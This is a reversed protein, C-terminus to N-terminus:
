MGNGFSHVVKTATIYTKVNGGCIFLLSPCYQTESPIVSKGACIQRTHLISDDPARILTGGQVSGLGVWALWAFCELHALVPAGFPGFM